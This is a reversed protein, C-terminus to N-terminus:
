LQVVGGGLVRAVIHALVLQPVVIRVFVVRSEVGGHLLPDLANIKKNVTLTRAPSHLLPQDFENYPTKLVSPFVSSSSVGASM